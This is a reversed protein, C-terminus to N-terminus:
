LGKAADAGSAEVTRGEELASTKLVWADDRRAELDPHTPQWGASISVDPISTAWRWSIARTKQWHWPHM